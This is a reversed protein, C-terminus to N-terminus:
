LLEKLLDVLDQDSSANRKSKIEKIVDDDLDLEKLVNLANSKEKNDRSHYNNLIQRAALEKQVLANNEIAFTTDIKPADNTSRGRTFISLFDKPKRVNSGLLQDENIENHVDLDLETVKRSLLFDHEDLGLDEGELPDKDKDPDRKAYAPPLSVGKNVAEAEQEEEQWELLDQQEEELEKQRQQDEEQEKERELAANIGMLEEQNLEDEQYNVSRKLLLEEEEDHLKSAKRKAM